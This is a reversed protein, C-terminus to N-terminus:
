ITISLALNTVSMLSCVVSLHSLMSDQAKGLGGKFHSTGRIWKHGRTPLYFKHYGKALVGGKFKENFIPVGGLFKSCLLQIQYIELVLILM